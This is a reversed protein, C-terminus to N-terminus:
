GFPHERRHPLWRREGGRHEGPQEDYHNLRVFAEWAIDGNMDLKVVWYIASAMPRNCM